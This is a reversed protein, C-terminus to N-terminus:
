QQAHHQQQRRLREGHLQGLMSNIQQYELCGEACGKNQLDDEERGPTSPEPLPAFGEGTQDSIRLRKAKEELLTAEQSSSVATRKGLSSM